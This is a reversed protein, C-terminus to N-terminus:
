HHLPLFPHEDLHRRLIEKATPGDAQRLAALATAGRLLPYLLAYASRFFVLRPAHVGISPANVPETM